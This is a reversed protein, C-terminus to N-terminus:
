DVLRAGPRMRVTSLKQLPSQQRLLTRVMQLIAQTATVTIGDAEQILQVGEEVEMPTNTGLLSEIITIVIEEIGTETESGTEIEIEARKGILLAEDDGIATHDLDLGLGEEDDDTITKMPVVHGVKAVVIRGVDTDAVGQAGINTVELIM